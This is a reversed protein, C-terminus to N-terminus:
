ANEDIWTGFIAMNSMANSFKILATGLSYTVTTVVSLKPQGAAGSWFKIAHLAIVKDTSVAGTLTRSLTPATSMDFTFGKINVSASRTPFHSFVVGNGPLIM